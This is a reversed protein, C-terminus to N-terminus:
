NAQSQYKQDSNISDKEQNLKPPAPKQNMEGRGLRIKGLFNTIERNALPAGQNKLQCSKPKQRFHNLRLV